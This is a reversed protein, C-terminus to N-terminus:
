LLLRTFTTMSGGYPSSATTLLSRLASNLRQSAPEHDRGSWRGAHRNRRCAIRKGSRAANNQRSSHVGRDHSSRKVWQRQQPRRVAQTKQVRIVGMQQPKDKHHVSGRSVTVAQVGHSQYGGNKVLAARGVRCMLMAMSGKMRDNERETPPPATRDPDTNSRRLASTLIANDGM